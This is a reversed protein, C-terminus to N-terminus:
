PTSTSPIERGTPLSSMSIAVSSTRRTTARGHLSFTFVSPDAEFVVATGDGQHVDCDVILARCILGRAQLSRIAIATDNFVCYGAGHDPFAHHTGGALNM